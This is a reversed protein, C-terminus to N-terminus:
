LQLRRRMVIRAAIGAAACGLATMLLVTSATDSAEAFGYNAAEAIGASFAGITALGFTWQLRMALVRQQASAEIDHQGEDDARPGADKTAHRMVTVFATTLLAACVSFVVLVVTLQAIV